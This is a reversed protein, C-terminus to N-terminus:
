NINEVLMNITFKYSLEPLHKINKRSFYTIFFINFKWFLPMLFNVVDEEFEYKIAEFFYKALHFLCICVFYNKIDNPKNFIKLLSYCCFNVTKNFQGSFCVFLFSFKWRYPKEGTHQRMHLELM